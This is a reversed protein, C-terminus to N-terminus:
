STEPDQSSHHNVILWKGKRLEFVFTFRAPVTVTTDEISNYTFTYLGTAYGM